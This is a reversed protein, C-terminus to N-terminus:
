TLTLYTEMNRLFKGNELWLQENGCAVLRAKLHEIGGEADRKTKFVWKSNLARVNKQVRVINWVGNNELATLEEAIAKSWGTKNLSRMAEGFNQPDSVSAVQNVVDDDVSHEASIQRSDSNKRSTSRKVVKKKRTWQAHKKSKTKKSHRSTTEETTQSELIDGDHDNERAFTEDVLGSNKQLYLKQVQKNQTTNLTEINKVHQTVVVLSDKPLYVHYGKTEEGIGVIIVQQGRQSFQKRPDRYVM